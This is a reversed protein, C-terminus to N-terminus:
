DLPEARERAMEPFYLLLNEKLAEISDRISDVYSANVPWANAKVLVDRISIKVDMM